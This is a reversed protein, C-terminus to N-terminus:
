FNASVYSVYISYHDVDQSPPSFCFVVQTTEGSGLAFKHNGIARPAQTINADTAELVVGNQNYLKVTLGIWSSSRNTYPNTGIPATSDDGNGADAPTYDNRVTVGIMLLPESGLRFSYNGPLYSWGFDPLKISGNDTTVTLHSRLEPTFPWTYPDYSYGTATSVLYIKTTEGQQTSSPVTTLYKSANPPKMKLALQTLNLATDLWTIAQGREVLKNDREEISNQLALVNNYWYVALVSTVVFLFAFVVVSSKLATDKVGGHTKGNEWARLEPFWASAKHM